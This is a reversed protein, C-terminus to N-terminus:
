HRRDYTGTTAEARPRRTAPARPPQVHGARLHPDSAFVESVFDIFLQVRAPTRRGGPQVVSIPIPPPMFRRLVSTVTGASLDRAFLWAPAFGLGLSALVAARIHEADNTRLNGVPDHSVVTDDLQFRWPSTAGFPAFVVCRHLSLEDPRKPTGFRALYDPSAVVVLSTSALKRAVHTSDQLEGTHIALDLGDEVLNPTRESARLEVAIGPYRDFFAALKAVLYSRALFPQVAVRVIGTPELQGGGVRTRVTELDELVRVLGDYLEQGADTLTLRNTDRRALQVGLQKELAAIKKSVAPQGIGLERAVASFTGREVVRVFTRFLDLEPSPM